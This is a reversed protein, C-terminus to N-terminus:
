GNNNAAEAKARKAADLKNIIEAAQAESLDKTSTCGTRKELWNYFQAPHEEGYIAKIFIHIRQLQAKSLSAKEENAPMLNSAQQAAEVPNPQSAIEQQWERAIEDEVQAADAAEQQPNRKAIENEWEMVVGDPAGHYLAAVHSGTDAYERVVSEASPAAERRIVESVNSAQGMEDGTYLGSLEQPFAKRLALAEACKALMLDPMKKWLPTPQGERNIQVYADYRAVAWLPDHFDERLVAVKAAAPPEPQLWVERWEMDRGCWFPGLQGAYKGTREAILRFGDISVQVGMVERKERGDWRKIAYIQRAFPDLGTRNCQQIFLGLEADSAGKAITIKILEIQERTLENRRTPVMLTTTTM